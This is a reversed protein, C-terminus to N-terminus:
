RNGGIISQLEQANRQYPDDLVWDSGSGSSRFRNQSSLTNILVSNEQSFWGWFGSNSNFVTLSNNISGGSNLGSSVASSIDKASTADSAKAAASGSGTFDEIIQDEYQQQNEKANILDDSAYLEKFTNLIDYGLHMDNDIHLLSNNIDEIYNGQQTIVIPQYPRLDNPAYSNLPIWNKFLNSDWINFYRYPINKSIKISIYTDYVNIDFYSFFTANDLRRITGNHELDDYSYIIYQTSTNNVTCSYGDPLPYIVELDEGKNEIISYFYFKLFSVNDGSLPYNYFLNINGGGYDYKEVLQMSSGSFSYHFTDELWHQMIHLDSDIHEVNPVLSQETAEALYSSYQEIYNVKSDITNLHNLSNTAYSDFLTEFTGLNSYILGLYPNNNYDFLGNKLSTNNTTINSAIAHLLSATTYQVIGDTYTNYGEITHLSTLIDSILGGTILSNYLNFTNNDYIKVYYNGNGVLTKWLLNYIDGADYDYQGSSRVATQYATERLLNDYEIINEDTVTPLLASNPYQVETDSGSPSVEPDHAFAFTFGSLIIVASILLSLFKKM